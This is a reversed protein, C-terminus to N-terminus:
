NVPNLLFRREGRNVTVPQPQKQLYRILADLDSIDTNERRAADGFAEYGDGRGALFDPVGVTYTDNPQVPTGDNLAMRVVRQGAPLAPDYVVTMGSVHIDPEGRSLGREVVSRIQAGTMWLKTMRNEFPQLAYLTAWTVPGAPIENSRIGGNNMFSIQAGTASRWTDALLNGLPGEASGRRVTDAFTTIVRNVQPGIERLAGDIIRQVASDPQVADAYPVPFARIWARTGTSDRTLDAIGYRTTYSAAEIIPIGNETWRVM